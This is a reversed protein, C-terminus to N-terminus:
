DHIISGLPGIGKQSDLVVHHATRHNLLVLLETVTFLASGNIPIVNRGGISGIPVM